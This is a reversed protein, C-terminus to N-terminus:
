ELIINYIESLNLLYQEKTIHQEFAKTNNASLKSSLKKDNVLRDLQKLLQEPKNNEFLLGNNEDEIFEPIGGVNGAVIPKGVQAAELMGYPFPDMRAPLVIIDAIFYFNEVDRQPSFIYINNNSKQYKELNMEDEIEGVLLLKLKPNKKNLQEFVNLLIDIGKIKSIRGLFLLVKNDSKIDCKNKIFIVKEENIEPLKEIFNHLVYIKKHFVKYNQIITNKIFQSVAIIKDSKFSFSKNNTVYSHATTVTKIVIIRSIIFSLFEPFRHHSHIIHINHKKCYAIIPFLSTLLFFLNNIGTSFKVIKYKVKLTVLRELSDGGNTIFHFQYKNQDYYKFLLCIHKSVGCSYNFNPSIHLVNIKM